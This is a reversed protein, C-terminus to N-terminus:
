GCDICIQQSPDNPNQEGELHLCERARRAMIDNLLNFIEDETLAECCHPCLM